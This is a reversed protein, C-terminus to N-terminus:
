DASKSLRNTIKHEWRHAFLDIKIKLGILLILAIVPAGLFLAVAGGFLIVVHLIVVRGYPRFMLEVPSLSRKV